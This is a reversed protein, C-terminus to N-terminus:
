ADGAWFEVNISFVDPFPLVYDDEDGTDLARTVCIVYTCTSDDDCERSKKDPVETWDNTTDPAGDFTDSITLGINDPNFSYRIWVGDTPTADEVYLEDNTWWVGWSPEENEEGANPAVATLCFEIDDGDITTDLKLTEGTWEYISDDSNIMESNKGILDYTKAFASAALLSAFCFKM